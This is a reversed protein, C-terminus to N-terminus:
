LEKAIRRLGTKKTAVESHVTDVRPLGQGLRSARGLQEGAVRPRQLQDVETAADVHGHEHRSRRKLHLNFRVAELADLHLGVSRPCILYIRKGM